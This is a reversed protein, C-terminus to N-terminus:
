TEGKLNTIGEIITHTPLGPDLRIGDTSTGGTIRRPSGNPPRFTGSVIGGAEYRLTLLGDYAGAAHEPELEVNYVATAPTTAARATLMGSSACALTAATLTAIKLSMRNMM